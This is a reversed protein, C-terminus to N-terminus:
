NAISKLIEIDEKEKRAKEAARARIKEVQRKKELDSKNIKLKELEFENKLKQAQILELKKLELQMKMEEVKNVDLIAKDQMELKKTEIATVDLTKRLEVATNNNSSNIKVAAAAQASKEIAVNEALKEQKENEMKQLEISGDIVTKTNKADYKNTINEETNGRLAVVLLIGIIFGIGILYKATRGLNKMLSNIM